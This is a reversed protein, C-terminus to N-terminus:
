GPGLTVRGDGAAYDYAVEVEEGAAVARPHSPVWTVFGWSHTTPVLVPDGTFGITPTLALEFFVSVADLRGTRTAPVRATRQFTLSPERTLDVNALEFADSLAELARADDLDMMLRLTSAEQAAEFASFDIGYAAGFREANERSFLNRDRVRRPLTALRAMVRVCCPIVRAGPALHRRWADYTTDVIREGLPEAGITETVLVDAREPLEVQTSWGRVLEIRDALGNRAFTERAQEAMASAEVAYVKRAGARAAAIALVGTGTGIDLVVDGPQVTQELARAFGKTRTEDRLMRVHIEPSNWSREDVAYTSRASEDVLVGAGRLFAITATLDLFDRTGRVGLTDIADAITRPSGFAWLLPLGHPGVSIDRGGCRIRAQGASELRIELDPARVLRETPGPLTKASM